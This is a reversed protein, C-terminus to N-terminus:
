CVRMGDNGTLGWSIAGWSEAGEVGRTRSFLHHRCETRVVGCGLAVWFVREMRTLLKWSGSIGHWRGVYGAARSAWGFQCASQPSLSGRAQLQHSDLSTGGVQRPHRQPGPHRLIGFRLRHWCRSPGQQLPPARPAYALPWDSSECAAPTEGRRHVICPLLAALDASLQVAAFIAFSNQWKAPPAQARSGPLPACRFM